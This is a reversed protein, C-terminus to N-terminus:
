ELGAKAIWQVVDCQREVLREITRADLRTAGPIQAAKEAAAESTMRITVRMPLAPRYPAPRAARAKAIAEAVKEATLRRAAEADLGSCLDYSEARKVAATVVGPFFAEAERCAAEDGQMMVTPVGWYGAYCAEIGMEGVSQGNIQFDAWDLQWTHPLFAGATGAKTHHGPLMLVDATDLGPMWRMGKGHPARSRGHYTVRPDTLMEPVRINGGGTHTDCVIVAEAGADLAAMVASNVDAMLLRRGEEVVHPRAGPEFYWTQERTFIGSAGEMDWHMFVKM